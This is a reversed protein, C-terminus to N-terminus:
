VVKTYRISKDLTILEQCADSMAFYEAECTSFTVYSQKHSRWAIVDRFLKVFLTVQLYQTKVIELVQM